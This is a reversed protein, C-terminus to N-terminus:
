SDGDSEKLYAKVEALIPPPAYGLAEDETAVDHLYDRARELLAEADALLDLADALRRELEAIRQQQRAIIAGLEEAARDTM